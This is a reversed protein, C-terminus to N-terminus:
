CDTNTLLLHFKDLNAKVSKNLFWTFFWESAMRIDRVIKNTSKNMAHYKSLISEFYESM